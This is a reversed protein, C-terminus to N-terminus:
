FRRGNIVGVIVKVITALGGLISGIAAIWTKWGEM